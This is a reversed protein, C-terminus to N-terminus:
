LRYSSWQVLLPMDFDYPLCLRLQLSGLRLKDQDEFKDISPASSHLHRYGIFQVHLSLVIGVPPLTQLLASVKIGDRFAGGLKLRLLSTPLALHWDDKESSPLSVDLSTMNPLGLRLNYSPSTSLLGVHMRELQLWTGLRADSSPAQSPSTHMDSTLDQRSKGALLVDLAISHEDTSRGFCVLNQLISPPPLCLHAVSGFYVIVPFYFSTISPPLHALFRTVMPHNWNTIDFFKMFKPYHMHLLHLDPFLTNLSIHTMGQYSYVYQTDLDDISPEVPRLFFNLAFQGSISIERMTPPLSVM